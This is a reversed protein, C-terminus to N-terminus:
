AERRRQAGLGRGRPPPPPFLKPHGEVILWREAVRQVVHVAHGRLPTEAGPLAIEIRGQWVALEPTLMRVSGPEQTLRAGAMTDHLLRQYAAEIEARGRQADGFAGVRVGDETYCSAAAAADGANMAAAFAQAEAIIRTVEDREM